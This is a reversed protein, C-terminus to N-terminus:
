RRRFFQIELFGICLNFQGRLRGHIREEDLPIRIVRVVWQFPLGAISPSKCDHRCTIESELRLHWRVARCPEMFRTLANM